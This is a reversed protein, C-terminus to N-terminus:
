HDRQTMLMGDNTRTATIGTKLSSLLKIVAIAFKFLRKELENQM